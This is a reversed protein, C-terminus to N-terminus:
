HRNNTMYLKKQIYTETRIQIIKHLLASNNVINERWGGGFKATKEAQNEWKRKM